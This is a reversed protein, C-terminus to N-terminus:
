VCLSTIKLLARMGFGGGTVKSYVYDKLGGLSELLSTNSRKIKTSFFARCIVM